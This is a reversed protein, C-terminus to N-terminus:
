EFLDIQCANAVRRMAALLETAAGLKGDLRLKAIKRVAELERKSVMDERADETLQKIDASAADRLRFLEEFRSVYSAIKRKGDLGFIESLPEPKRSPEGCEINAEM